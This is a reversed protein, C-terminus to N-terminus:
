GSSWTRLLEHQRDLMAARGSESHDDWGLVHLLGHLMLFALEENATWGDVQAHRAATEISIVIDAGSVGDEPDYPFTMIDTPSPDNLYAEHLQCMEQDEVCRIAFEWTGVQGEHELAHRFLSAAEEEGTIRFRDTTGVWDVSVDVRVRRQM